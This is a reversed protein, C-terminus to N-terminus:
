LYKSVVERLRAQVTSFDGNADIDHWKSKFLPHQALLDYGEEVKEFFSQPLREWKDGKPDYARAMATPIDMQLRLILDPVVHGVPLNNISLVVDIGVGRAHGQYACSTLFTRDSIAIGGADLCPKILRRTTQARSAAYLYAECIPDMEELYETGQVVRRIEEAIETGGPERTLVVLREPMLASLWEALGKAGSSKGVGIIGELAIYMKSRERKKFKGNLFNLLFKNKNPYIDKLNQLHIILNIVLLFGVILNMKPTKTITQENATKNKKTAKPQLFLEM